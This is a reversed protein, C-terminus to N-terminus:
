HRIVLTWLWVPGMDMAFKELCIDAKAKKPFFVPGLM